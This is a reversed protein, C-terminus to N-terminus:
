IDPKCLFITSIHTGEFARHVRSQTETAWQDDSTAFVVQSARIATAAVKYSGLKKEEDGESRGLRGETKAEGLIILGDLNCGFDIEMFPKPDDPSKRIEFEPIFDFTDKAKKRLADLALITTISGGKMAQYLVEHVNFYWQPELPQRWHSRQYIQTQRCRKCEFTQSVDQVDYWDANRCRECKFIFGRYFVGQKAMRDVLDAAKERDGMLKEIDHFNLYRRESICVGEDFVGKKNPASDLFKQFVLQTAPDRLTEAAEPLSGLKAISEQTFGGKESLTLSFGRVEFLSRILQQADLLALKPRVLVSEIEGGLYAINPCFYAVGSRGARIDHSGYNRIQVTKEGLGFHRPIKGKDISIETIWRLDRPDIYRFNKPKPTEFFGGTQGDVFPEVTTRFNERELVFRPSKLFESVNTHIHFAKTFAEREEVLVFKSLATAAESLDGPQGSANMLVIKAGPGRHLVRAYVSSIVRSLFSTGPKEFQTPALWRGNAPIERLFEIPVWVAEGRLRSLSYFLCFDELSSGVVVFVPSLLPSIYTTQYYSLALMSHEFPLAASSDDALRQDLVLGPLADMCASDVIAPVEYLGHLKTLFDRRFSGAMAATILRLFNDDPPVLGKVAGKHDCNALVTTLSTLPYQPDIGAGVSGLLAKEEFYFPVLREKLEQELESAVQFDTLPLHAAQGEFSQRHAAPNSNPYRKSFDQVQRDLWEHYKDPKAIKWDVLSQYYPYVYDPDYADLISWFLATISSGDTPIMLFYQGGWHQSAWEITRLVTDQWDKDGKDLLVAVRAPRVWSNVTKFELM